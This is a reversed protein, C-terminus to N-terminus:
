IPGNGYTSVPKRPPDGLANDEIQQIKGGKALFADIEAQMSERLKNRAALGSHASAAAAALEEASIEDEEAEAASGTEASDDDSDLDDEEEELPEEEYLDLDDDAM